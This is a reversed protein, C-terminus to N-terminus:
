KIVEYDGTLFDVKRVCEVYRENHFVLLDKTIDILKGEFKRRGNIRTFEAFLDEKVPYDSNEKISYTEGLKFDLKKDVDELKIAGQPVQRKLPKHIGLKISHERVYHHSVGLRKGIDAFSLKGYNEIIYDREWDALPRAHPHLKTMRMGGKM